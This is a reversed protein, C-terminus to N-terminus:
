HLVIVPDGHIEMILITWYGISYSGKVYLIHPRGTIVRKIHTHSNGSEMKESGYRGGGSHDGGAGM